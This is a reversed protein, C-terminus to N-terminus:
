ELLYRLLSPLYVVSTVVINAPKAICLLSILRESIVIIYTTFIFVVSLFGQRRLPRLLVANVVANGVAEASKWPQCKLSCPSYQLFWPKYTTLCFVVGRFLTLHLLQLVMFSFISILLTKQRKKSFFHSM